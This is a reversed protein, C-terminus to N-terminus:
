FPQRCQDSRDPRNDLLGSQIVRIPCGSRTQIQSGKLRLINQRLVLQDRGQNFYPHAATQVVFAFTRNGQDSPIGINGKVVLTGQPRDPAIARSFAPIMLGPIGTTNPRCAVFPIRNQFFCGPRHRCGIKPHPLLNTAFEHPHIQGPGMQLSWHCSSGGKATRTLRKAGVLGVIRRQGKAQKLQHFGPNERPTLVVQHCTIVLTVHGPRISNKGPGGGKISSPGMIRVSYDIKGM